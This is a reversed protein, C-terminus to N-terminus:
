MLFRLPRPRDERRKMQDALKERQEPALIINIDGLIRGTLFTLEEALKGSEVSLRQLNFRYNEDFPNLERIAGRNVLSRERLSDFQAKSAGMLKSISEEQMENLDLYSTLRELLAEPTLTERDRGRHHRGQKVREGDIGPQDQAVVVGSIVVAALVVGILFSLKAM